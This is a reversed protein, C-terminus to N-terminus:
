IKGLLYQKRKSEPFKEIAYRLATRGMKKYRKKLYSEALRNNRNGVERLMWGVSKQVLDEKDYLLIDAIKLTETLKGNKIFNYTAVMAIRKEWLNKSNALKELIDKPKDMLYGGIIKDSSLDVLDWNNIFKTNRLYFDYVRRQEMPEKQFKNVLILLAILREEHIKSKLLEKIDDFGLAKYKTALIRSQPVTLGLFIDGFGYDGEETKFYRSLLVAKKKNAQKKLDKRLSPLM